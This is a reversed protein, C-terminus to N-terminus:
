VWAEVGSEECVRKLRVLAREELQRVRERTVGLRAGIEELTQVPDGALGFRARLIEADRPVLRLLARHLKEETDEKLVSEEPSMGEADPIVEALSWEESEGVPADLSVVSLPTGALIFPKVKDEAVAFIEEQTPPRHLAGELEHSLRALRWRRAQVRASTHIIDGGQETQASTIAQWVWWVAYTIFKVGQEPDFKEVARMLGLVGEQVLDLYSLRGRGQHHRAVSLVFRLNRRILEDRYGRFCRLDERLARVLARLTESTPQEPAARRPHSLSEQLEELLQVIDRESLSEPKLAREELMSAVLTRHANLSSLIRQWVARANHTLIREEESTLLPSHGLDLHFLQELELPTSREREEESEETVSGLPLWPTATSVLADQREAHQWDM